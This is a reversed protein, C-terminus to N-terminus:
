PPTPAARVLGEVSAKHRRANEVYAPAGLRLDAIAAEDLDRMFKAPRGSWLQGAPIHKHPTLLAGAALMAGGEIVCGDMVITGLGVFAHDHLHCGHIMAMHGILVHDGIVTPYGDAQGPKPGDCHIVSGDQINTGAGIRISNSDGRVVCNYWVSSEPGIEVDGIIVTGPAIFASDHIRPWKGEFPLIVPGTM